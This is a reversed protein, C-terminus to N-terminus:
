NIQGGEEEIDQEVCITTAVAIALGQVIDDLPMSPVDPRGETQESILPIHIFGGRMQPYKTAILHALGYFLHNCVFTGATNSVAAAIGAKRIDRVIAKIPLTSWYAVPGQPVIPKDIPSQGANDPIRADDVNIAVREPTINARGEAQGVSIVMDPRVNQVAQRLSEISRGFETPLQVITINAGELKFDALRKVAEWAANTEAGGFPEFGTILVNKM